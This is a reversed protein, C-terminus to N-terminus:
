LWLYMRRSKGAFVVAGAITAGLGGACILPTGLFFLLQRGIVLLVIGILLVAYESDQTGVVGYITNLITLVYIVSLVIHVSMEEGVTHVLSPNLELSDVPIAYVLSFAVLLAIGLATGTKQYTVGAIYLSSTFLCFVGLINGFYVVRTGTTAYSRPLELLTTLPQLIKALDLTLTFLFVLFFFVEPASIKRFFHTIIVLTIPVFLGIAGLTTLSWLLSDPPVSWSFLLWRQTDLASVLNRANEARLIRYLGFLFAGFALLSAM